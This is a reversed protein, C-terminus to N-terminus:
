TAIPPRSEHVRHAVTHSMAPAACIRRGPPMSRRLLTRGNNGNSVPLGPPGMASMAPWTRACATGHRTAWRFAPQRRGSSARGGARSRSTGGRGAGSTAFPPERRSLRRRRRAATKRRSCVTVCNPSPESWRRACRDAAARRHPRRGGRCGPRTARGSAVDAGLTGTGRPAEVGPALLAVDGGVDATAKVAGRTASRAVGGLEGGIQEAAEMTGQIAHKAVAGLDAGIAEAARISGRVASVAATGIEGGVDRAGALATVLTNRVINLVGVTLTEGRGLATTIAREVGGASVTSRPRTSRDAAQGDTEQSTRSRNTVASMRKKAAM